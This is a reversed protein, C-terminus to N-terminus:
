WRPRRRWRRCTSQDPSARAGPSQRRVTPSEAIPNQRRHRGGARACLSQPLNRSRAPSLYASCSGAGVDADLSFAQSHNARARRAATSSSEADPTHMTRCPADRPVSNDTITLDISRV